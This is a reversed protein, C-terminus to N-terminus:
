LRGAVARPRWEHREADGWLRELSYFERADEQFVHVVVDGLDVLIWRGPQEGELGLTRQGLKRAAESAADALARAHRDSTASAVVFYDTFSKLDGLDLIKVDM